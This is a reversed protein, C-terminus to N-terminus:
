DSNFYNIFCDFNIVDDFISFNSDVSSGNDENLAINDKDNSLVNENIVDKNDNSTNEVKSQKEKKLDMDILTLPTNNHSIIYLKNSFSHSGLNKMQSELKTMDVNLKKQEKNKQDNPFLHDVNIGSESKIALLNTCNDREPIFPILDKEIM